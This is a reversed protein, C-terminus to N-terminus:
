GIAKEIQDLSNIPNDWKKKLKGDKVWIVVPVSNIKYLNLFNVYEDNNMKERDLSTYYATIEVSHNELIPSLKEELIMCDKCGERGIYVLADDASILLASVEELSVGKIWENEIYDSNKSYGIKYSHFTQYHALIDIAVFVTALILMGKVLFSINGTSYVHVMGLGAVFLSIALSAWSIIQVAKPEALEPNSDLVYGTRILIFASLSIIITLSAGIIMKKM